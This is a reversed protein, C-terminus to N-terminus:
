TFAPSLSLAHASWVVTWAVHARGAHLADDFLRKDGRKPSAAEAGWLTPPHSLPLASLMAGATLGAKLVDRRSIGAANRLPVPQTPM